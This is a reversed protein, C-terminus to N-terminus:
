LGAVTIQLLYWAVIWLMNWANETPSCKINMNNKYHLWVDYRDYYGNHTWICSKNSGVSTIEANKTTNPLIHQWMLWREYHHFQYKNSKKYAESGASSSLKNQIACSNYGVSWTSHINRIRTTNLVWTGLTSTTTIMRGIGNGDVICAHGIFHCLEYISQNRKKILQQSIDVWKYESTM